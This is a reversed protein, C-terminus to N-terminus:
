AAASNGSPSTRARDRAGFEESEQWTKISKGEERAKPLCQPYRLHVFEIAKERLECELQFALGATAASGLIRIEMSEHKADTVQVSFSRKDWAPSARVVETLYTRLEAVPMTFDVRLTVPAQMEASGRTYNIVPKEIFYSIPLILRRQDWIRVVVYSLTIEEVHGVQDEVKIQDGIRVPQTLAIQLGAFLGALSRQAAFGLVIGAIGASALISRGVDRVEEFMMLIAALSFVTILILVVKRLMSIRTVLARGAYNDAAKLGKESILARETLLVARRFIWAMAMILAIALLKRLLEVTTPPFPWLRVLFFLAIIPLLVRLALGLLPLVVDDVKSNTAAAAGRLQAAAVRTGREIMWTFAVFAGLGALNQLWGQLHGWSPPLSYELLVRAVAYLGYYWVLLNIPTALAVFWHLRRNESGTDTEKLLRKLLRRLLLNLLATILLVAIALQMAPETLSPLSM